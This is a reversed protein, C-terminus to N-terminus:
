SYFDYKSLETRLVSVQAQYPTIFHVRKPDVQENMVLHDLFKVAVEAEEM